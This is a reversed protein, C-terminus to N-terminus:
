RNEGGRKLLSELKYTSKWKNYMGEVHCNVCSDDTSSSPM